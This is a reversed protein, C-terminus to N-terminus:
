PREMAKIRAELRAEREACEIREQALQGFARDIEKGLRGVLQEYADLAVRVQASQAENRSIRENLRDHRRQRLWALWGLGATSIATVLAAVGVEM